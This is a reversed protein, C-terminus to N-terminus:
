PVSFYYKDFLHFALYKNSTLHTKLEHLNISSYFNEHWIKKRLLTDEYYKMTVALNVITDGLHNLTEYNFFELNKRIKEEERVMLYHDKFSSHTFAQLLLGENEDFKLGKNSM